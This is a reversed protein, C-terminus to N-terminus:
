MPDMAFQCADMLRSGGFVFASNRSIIASATRLVCGPAVGLGLCASLDLLSGCATTARQDNRGTRPTRARSLEAREDASLQKGDVYDRDREADKRAMLSASESEEFMRCLDAVDLLNTTTPNTM